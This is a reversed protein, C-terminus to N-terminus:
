IGMPFYIRNGIIQRFQFRKGLLRKREGAQSRM